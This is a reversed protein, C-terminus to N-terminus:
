KHTHTHIYEGMMMLATCNTVQGSCGGPRMKCESSENSTSGRRGVKSVKGPDDQRHIAGKVHM